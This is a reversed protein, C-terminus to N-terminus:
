RGKRRKGNNANTNSAKVLVNALKVLDNTSVSEGSALVASLGLGMTGAFVVAAGIYTSSGANVLVIGGAIGLFALGLTGYKLIRRARNNARKEVEDPDRLKQNIANTAARESLALRREEFELTADFFQKLTEVRKEAPAHVVLKEVLVNVNVASVALKEEAAIREADKASAIEGQPIHQLERKNENSM